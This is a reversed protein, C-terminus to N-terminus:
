KPAGGLAGPLPPPYSDATSSQGCFLSSTFTEQPLFSFSLPSSPFHPGVPGKSFLFSFEEAMDSQEGGGTPPGEGQAPAKSPVSASFRTPAADKACAGSQNDPSRPELYPKVM